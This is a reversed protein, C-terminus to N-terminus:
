TLGEKLQQAYEFRDGHRFRRMYQPHYVKRHQLGIATLRDSAKNGLAVVPPHLLSKWLSALDVREERSNVIGVRDRLGATLLSSLLYESSSGRLTPTFPRRLDPRGKPGNGREDGVFLVDPRNSGIYTGGSWLAPSFMRETSAMAERYLTRVLDGVDESGTVQWYGFRHLLGHYRTWLEELDAVDILDDGRGLFRRETEPYSPLCMVRVAGKAQLALETHYVGAETYRSGGRYVPGYVYEGLHWRDMIVMVKTSRIAEAMPLSDLETEYEDFPCRALDLPPGVHTIFATKGQSVVHNALRTALTSKGGGDPGELVVLM